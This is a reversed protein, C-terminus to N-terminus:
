LRQPQKLGEDLTADGISFFVEGDRTVFSLRLHMFVSAPDAGNFTEFSLM